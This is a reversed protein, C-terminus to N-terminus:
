KSNTKSKLKTPQNFLLGTRMTNSYIKEHRISEDKAFSMLDEYTEELQHQLDCHQKSVKHNLQSQEELLDSLYNKRYVDQNSTIKEKLFM